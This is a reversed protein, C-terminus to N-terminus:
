NRDLDQKKEENEGFQEFNFKGFNHNDDMNNTNVDYERLIDKITDQSLLLEEEKQMIADLKSEFNEIKSLNEETKQTCAEMKFVLNDM